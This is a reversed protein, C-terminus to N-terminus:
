CGGCFSGGTWGCFSCNGHCCDSDSVCEAGNDQRNDNNGCTTSAPTSGVPDNTWPCKCNQCQAQKHPEDGTVYCDGHSGCPGPDCLDNCIWGTPSNESVVNALNKGVCTCAKAKSSTDFSGNPMCPDPICTPNNKCHSTLNPNNVDEPCRIYGPNCVCVGNEIHGNPACSDSVCNKVYTGTKTDHIGYYKLGTKCKCAGSRPDVDQNDTWPAFCSADSGAQPPKGDATWCVQGSACDSTRTCKKDGVPVYLDGDDPYGCALEENCNSGPSDQMFLNPLQCHCGWEYVTQGKENETQILISDSTLNNCKSKQIVPPLCWGKGAPSNPLTLTKDKQSWKYPKKDTVEVCGWQPSNVCLNCIGDKKDLECEVLKTYPYLDCETKDKPICITRDYDRNYACKQTVSCDKNSKCQDKYVPTGGGHRKVLIVVITVFAATLFVGLILLLWNM